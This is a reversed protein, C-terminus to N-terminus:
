KDEDNNSNLRQQVYEIRGAETKSSEILADMDMNKTGSVFLFIILGITFIASGYKIFKQMDNLEEKDKKKNDM